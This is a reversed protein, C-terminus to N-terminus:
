VRLRMGCDPCLGIKSTRGKHPCLSQIIGLEHKLQSIQTQLDQIRQHLPDTFLKFVKYKAIIKAMENLRKEHRHRNEAEMEPRQPGGVVIQKRLDDRLGLSSIELVARDAPRLRVPFPVAKILKGRGKHGVVVRPMKDFKALARQFDSIRKAM